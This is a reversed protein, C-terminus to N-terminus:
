GATFPYSRTPPRPEGLPLFVISTRIPFYCVGAREEGAGHQSLAHRRQSAVGPEPALRGM